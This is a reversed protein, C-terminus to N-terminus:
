YVRLRDIIFGQYSQLRLMVGSDSKTPLVTASWRKALDFLLFESSIYCETGDWRPGETQCRGDSSHFFSVNYSLLLLSSFFHEVVSTQIPRCLFLRTSCTRFVKIIDWFYDMTAVSNGVTSSVGECICSRANLSLQLHHCIAINVQRFNTIMHIEHKGEQNVSRGNHRPTSVKSEAWHVSAISQWVNM